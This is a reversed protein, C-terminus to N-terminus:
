RRKRKLSILSFSAVTLLSTPEPIFGTIIPDSFYLGSSTDGSGTSILSVVAGTSKNFVLASSDGSIAYEGGQSYVPIFSTYLNASALTDLLGRNEVDWSRIDGTILPSVIPSQIPGFSVVAYNQGYAPLEFGYSGSFPLPSNLIIKGIDPTSRDGLIFNPHRAWSKASVVSGPDTTINSGNGVFNIRALSTASPIRHASVLVETPSLLYGHTTYPVGTNTQGQIFVVRGTYPQANQKLVPDRLPIDFTFVGKSNNVAVGGVMGAAAVVPAIKSLMCSKVLNTIGGYFAGMPLPNNSKNPRGSNSRNLLVCKLSTNQTFPSFNMANNREALRQRRFAPSAHPTSVVRPAPSDLLDEPRSRKGRTMGCFRPQRRLAIFYSGDDAEWKLVKAVGRSRGV